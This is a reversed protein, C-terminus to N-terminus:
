DNKYMKLLKEIDCKCCKEPEYRYTHGDWRHGCPANEEKSVWRTEYWINWPISYLKESEVVNSQFDKLRQYGNPLRLISECFELFKSRSEILYGDWQINAYEELYKRYTQLDNINKTYNWATINPPKFDILFGRDLFMKFKEKNNLWEDIFSQTTICEIHMIVEPYLEHIKNINKLWLHYDEQSHFRGKTDYSTCILIRQYRPKNKVLVKLTNILPFLYDTILNSTLWVEKIKDTDMLDKVSKILSMFSEHTEIDMQQDGFLEGGIFGVATYDSTLRTKIDNIAFNCAEQKQKETYIVRNTNLYCFSCANSCNHWLEYQLCKNEAKVLDIITQKTTELKQKRQKTIIPDVQETNNHNTYESIVGYEEKDQTLRLLQLTEQFDDETEDGFGVLFDHRIKIGEAKKIINLIQQKTHARRMEKLIRNSGSQTALYLEKRIRPENKILEILDFIEFYAPDLSDLNLSHLQPFDSLINKVLTLLSYNNNPEKYQAINVGVLCIDYVNSNLNNIIDQKIDDYSISVSKGRLKPIICYACNSNCGDQIKIKGSHKESKTDHSENSLQSYYDENLKSKNDIVIIDKNDFYESACGVVFIKYGDCIDIIKNVIEKSITLNKDHVACTNIVIFKSFYKSTISKIKEVETFNLECGIAISIASIDDLNYYVINGYKSLFDNLKNM